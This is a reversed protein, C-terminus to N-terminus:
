LYDPADFYAAVYALDVINVAGSANIDAALAYGPGGITSDFVSAVFALDQINVMGDGNIDLRRTLALTTTVNGATESVGIDSSLPPSTPPISLIISGYYTSGKNQLQVGAITYNKTFLSTGTTSNKASVAATGSLQGTFQSVDLSATTSVTVGQLTENANAIVHVPPVLAAVTRYADPSGLGTPYDWGTSALYYGNFGSLVDHYTSLSYLGADIAGLSHQNAEAALALLGAWQPSGASTGGVEFRTANYVILFGTTPDADYSVDVSDRSLTDGLGRQWSPKAFVISNGATSGSWAQESSYSADAKLTLTTGGVGVVLPDSAPYQVACCGLSGIDGSSAFISTGHSAISVFLQHTNGITLSGKTPYHSEYDGWSMSLSAEQPLNNAVYSIADFMHQYSPDPSVVLDITAGPAIAHAWEVDLATETAWDSSISTPTGDPYYYNVTTSSLGTVSDFSALDTSLTPDGYADIIAIRTGSGDYGRAYIALFDYAKWIDSPAFPPQGPVITSAPRVILPHSLGHSPAPPPAEALVPQFVIVMILILAQTSCVIARLM